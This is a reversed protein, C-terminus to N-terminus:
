YPTTPSHIYCSVTIFTVAMVKGSGRGRKEGGSYLLIEALFSSSSLPSNIFGTLCYLFLSHNLSKNITGQPSPLHFSFLKSSWSSLRNDPIIFFRSIPLAAIVKLYTYFPCVSDHHLLTNSSPSFIFSFEFVQFVSDNASIPRSILWLLSDIFHAHQILRQPQLYISKVCSFSSRSKSQFLSSPSAQYVMLRPNYHVPPINIQIIIFWIGRDM